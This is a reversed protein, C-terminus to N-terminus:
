VDVFVFATMCGWGAACAFVLFFACLRTGWLLEGAPGPGGGTFVAAIVAELVETVDISGRAPPISSGAGGVANLM